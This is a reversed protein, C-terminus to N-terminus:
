SIWTIIGWISIALLVTHVPQILTTSFCIASYVVDSLSITQGREGKRKWLNRCYRKSMEGLSDVGLLASMVGAGDLGDILLLNVLALETNILAIYFFGEANWQSKAALIFAIGALLINAEIGAADIQARKLHGQVSETDMLVYAGPFPFRFMIGIEFVNGGYAMGAFAHAIEHVMMASLIGIISNVVLSGGYFDPWINVLSVVGSIFVPLFLVQLLKNLVSPITHKSRQMRPIWLTYYFGDLSANLVRSRRLLNHKDLERLLGIVDDDSLSASISFPDTNGDLRKAFHAIVSGLIYTEDNMFDTVEYEGYGTKKFVLWNKMRPYKYRM